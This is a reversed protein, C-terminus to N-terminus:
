IQRYHDTRIEASNGRIQSVHKITKECRELRILEFTAMVEDKLIREVLM